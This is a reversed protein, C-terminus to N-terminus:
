SFPFLKKSEDNEKRRKRETPQVCKESCSSSCLVFVSFLRRRHPRLPFHFFNALHNSVSHKSSWSIHKIYHVCAHFIGQKPCEWDTDQTSCSTCLTYYTYIFRQSMIIVVCEETFRTLYITTYFSYPFTFSLTFLLKHTSNHHHNGKEKFTSLIQLFKRICLKFFFTKRPKRM